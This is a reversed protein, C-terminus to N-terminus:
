FTQCNEFITTAMYPSNYFMTLPPPSAMLQTCFQRDGCQITIERLALKLPQSFIRMSFCCKVVKRMFFNGSNTQKYSANPLSHIEKPYLSFCCEYLAPPLRVEQQCVLLKKRRTSLCLLIVHAHEKEKQMQASVFNRLVLKALKKWLLNERVWQQSVHGRCITTNLFSLYYKM